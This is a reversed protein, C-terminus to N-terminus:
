ETAEPSVPSGLQALADELSTAVGGLNLKASIVMSYHYTLTAAVVPDSHLALAVAEIEDPDADFDCSDMFGLINGEDDRLDSCTERMAIQMHMPIIQRATVRYSSDLGLQYLDKATDFAYFQSLGSEVADKPLLGLHGSSIIQDWTAREPTTYSVETGRYANVILDRPDPDTQRLLEDTRIVSVLVAAYYAAQSKTGELNVQTERTLQRLYDKGLRANAREANWNGLQIGLYVGFVVILTEILVTFWDQKRLADTLRRLIM